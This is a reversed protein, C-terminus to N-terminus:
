AGDAPVHAPWHEVYVRRMAADAEETAPYPLGLSALAARGERVLADFVRLHLALLAQVDRKALAAIVEASLADLEARQEHRLRLPITFRNKILLAPDIQVAMLAALNDNIVELECMAYVSWQGRVLLRIPWLGGQRILGYVAQMRAGVSQPEAAARSRLREDVGAKDVLMAFPTRRGAGAESEKGFVLDLKVPGALLCNAIRLGPVTGDAFFLVPGLREAITRREAFLNECAEDRALIYADVDSLADATGDAISGQVWCAVIREDRTAFDRLREVLDARAREFVEADSM